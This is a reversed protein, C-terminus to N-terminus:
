LGHQFQPSQLRALGALVSLIGIHRTLYHDTSPCGVIEVGLSEIRSSLGRRLRDVKRLRNFYRLYEEKRVPPATELIPPRLESGHGLVMVVRRGFQRLFMLDLNRPLTSLGFQFYYADYPKLGEIFSMLSLVALVAKNIIRLRLISSARSTRVKQHFAQALRTVLPLDDIAGLYGFVDENLIVLRANV